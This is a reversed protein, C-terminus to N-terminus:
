RRWRRVGVALAGAIMLSWAAPEPVESGPKFTQRVISQQADRLYWVRENETRDIMWVSLTSGIPATGMYQWGPTKALLTGNIEMWVDHATAEGLYQAWVHATTPTFFTFETEAGIDMDLDTWLPLVNDSVYVAAHSGPVVLAPLGRCPDSMAVATSDPSFVPIECGGITAGDAPIVFLAMYLAGAICAWTIWRGIM